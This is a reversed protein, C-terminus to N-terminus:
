WKGAIPPQTYISPIAHIFLTIQLRSAIDANSGMITGAELDRDESNVIDNETLIRNQCGSSSLGRVPAGSKVSDPAPLHLWGDRKLTEAKTKNVCM